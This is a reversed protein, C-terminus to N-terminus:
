PFTGAGCQCTNHGAAHHELKQQRIEAHLDACPVLYSQAVAQLVLNEGM